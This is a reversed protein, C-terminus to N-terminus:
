YLIPDLLPLTIATFVLGIIVNLVVVNGLVRRATDYDKQGLRVDIGKLNNERAGKIEIYNNWKRRHSPM